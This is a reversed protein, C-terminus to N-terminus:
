LGNVAAVGPFTIQAAHLWQPHLAAWSGAEGTQCLRPFPDQMLFGPLQLEVGGHFSLSSGFSDSSPCPCSDDGRTQFSSDTLQTSASQGEGFQLTWFGIDDAGRQTDLAVGPDASSPSLFYNSLSSSFQPTCAGSPRRSCESARAQVRLVQQMAEGAGAQVGGGGGGGRLCGFVVALLVDTPLLPWTLWGQCARHTWSSCSLSGDPHPKTKLGLSPGPPRHQAILISCTPPLFTPVM